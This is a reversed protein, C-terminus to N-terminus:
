YNWDEDWAACVAKPDTIESEDVQCTPKNDIIDSHKCNECNKIPEDIIPTQEVVVEEVVQPAPQEVYKDCVGGIDITDHAALLDCCADDYTSRFSRICNGCCQDPLRYGIEEKTNKM